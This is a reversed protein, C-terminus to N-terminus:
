AIAYPEVPHTSYYRGCRVGGRGREEEEMVFTTMLESISVARMSAHHLLYTYADHAHVDFLSGNSCHAIVFAMESKCIGLFQVINPHALKAVM